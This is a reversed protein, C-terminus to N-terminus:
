TLEEENFEFAQDPLAPPTHLRQMVAKFEAEMLILKAM